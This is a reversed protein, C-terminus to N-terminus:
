NMRMIALPPVNAFDCKQLRAAQLSLLCRPLGCRQRLSASPPRRWSWLPPLGPYIEGPAARSDEGNVQIGLSLSGHALPQFRPTHFVATVLNQEMGLMPKPKSGDLGREAHIDHRCHQVQGSSFYPQRAGHGRVVAVCRGILPFPRSCYSKIKISVGGLRPSNVSFANCSGISGASNCSWTYAASASPLRSAVISSTRWSLGLKCIPPMIYLPPCAYWGSGRSRPGPGRRTHHDPRGFRGDREVGFERFGRGCPFWDTRIRRVAGTGM